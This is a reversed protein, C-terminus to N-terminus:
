RPGPDPSGPLILDDRPNLSTVADNDWVHQTIALGVLRIFGLFIRELLDRIIEGSKKVM